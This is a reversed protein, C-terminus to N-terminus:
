SQILLSEIIFMFVVLYTNRENVKMKYCQGLHCVLNLLWVLSSAKVKLVLWTETSHM